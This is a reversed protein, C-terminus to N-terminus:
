FVEPGGATAQPFPTGTLLALYQDLSEATLTGLTRGRLIGKTDIFFTMPLGFAEYTLSASLDTDLLIPFHLNLREAYGRATTADERQNIGLVVIGSYELRQYVADLLPMEKRCPICWSAWFNLVVSRGLYDHLRHVKGDLGLLTFEPAPHGISVPSEDLIDTPQATPRMVAGSSNVRAQQSADTLQGAAVLLTVLSIALLAMRRIPRCNYAYM